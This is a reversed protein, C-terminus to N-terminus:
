KEIFKDQYQDLMNKFLSMISDTFIQRCCPLILLLNDIHTLQNRLVQILLVINKDSKKYEGLAYLIYGTREIFEFVIANGREEESVDTQLSYLYLLRNRLYDPLNSIQAKYSNIELESSTETKKKYITDGVNIEGLDHLAACALVSYPDYSLQPPEQRLIELVFISLIVTSFSHQLDNEETAGLKLYPKWRIVSELGSITNRLFDEIDNLM